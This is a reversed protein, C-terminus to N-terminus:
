SQREIVSAGNQHTNNSTIRHTDKNVPRMGALYGTDELVDVPKRGCYSSRNIIAKMSYDLYGLLPTLSGYKFGTNWMKIIIYM